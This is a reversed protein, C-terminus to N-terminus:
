RKGMEKEACKACDLDCIGSYPCNRQCFLKLQALNEKEEGYDTAPKASYGEVPRFSAVVDELSLGSGIIAEEILDIVWDAAVEDKFSAVQYMASEKGFSVLLVPKKKRPKKVIHFSIIGVKYTMNRKM